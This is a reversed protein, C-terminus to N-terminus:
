PNANIGKVLPFKGSDDAMVKIAHDIAKGFQKPSHPIGVVGDDYPPESRRWKNVEKLIKITKKTKM